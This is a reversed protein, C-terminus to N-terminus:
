ATWPPRIPGPRWYEKPRFAGHWPARRPKKPREARPPRPRAARPPRPPLALAPPLELMLLRLIPRLQRKLQPAAQLLAVMQPDELLLCFYNGYTVSPWAQSILWGPRTPLRLSAPRQSAPRQSAPRSSTPRPHPQSPPTDTTAIPPRPRPAVRRGAAFRQSLIAVRRDLQGLRKHLLMLVAHTSGAKVMHAALLARLGTVILAFRAAM